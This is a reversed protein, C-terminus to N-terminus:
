EKYIWGGALSWCKVISGTSLSEQCHSSQWHYVRIIERMKEDLIMDRYVLKEAIM